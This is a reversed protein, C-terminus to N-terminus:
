DKCEEAAQDALRTPEPLKYGASTAEVLSVATEASVRHGPSVYVPNVYRRDPNEFQRTQYVYGIITGPATEVSEDAEIPIKTGAALPGEIPRTVSGCLLNKAVGIAPTDFLVGVHTAIGAQRFHIRGNGDLVLLDPDVTLQALAEIIPGGERFSLLGPIYPIELSTRGCATEIVQGDRVAVVASLAEEDLFAQDVGVVIPGPEPGDSPEASDPRPARASASILTSAATSQSSPSASIPEPMSVAELDFEFADEFVAREGITRQQAEMTERDAGPNPVLEPHVIEM